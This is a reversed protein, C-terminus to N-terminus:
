AEVNAMINKYRLNVFLGLLVGIGTVVINMIIVQESTVAAAASLITYNCLSSALMVLATVTGKIKPFMMNCVSTALQLVGGAGAWGILFSGAICMEPTRVFYVAILTVLCIIPYALIFRVDKIKRTLLATVVLAILTGASYWTQMIAPSAFGAYETAYTQACNLWLMFTGSCTFGVLIMAVSEPSFHTNKIASLLGEEKTSGEEGKDGPMPAFFICICLVLYGIGSVIFLANYGLFSAAAMGLFFPMLMQSIAIFFKIGMTAVGPAKKFIEALAPYIGTDLFSNALGGVIACIYAIEFSPAFAVGVLYIVYSGSGIMVSAKRGLKDSLPGAVFLSILRGLGLAAAVATVMAVECGWRGALTEKIVAQGLISCGIGHLFYNMYLIVAAPIYKALNSM